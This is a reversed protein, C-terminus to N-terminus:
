FKIRRVHSDPVGEGVTTSAFSKIKGRVVSIGREDSANLELVRKKSLEPGFLQKCIALAVPLKGLVLLAM